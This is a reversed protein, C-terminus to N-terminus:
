DRIEVKYVKEGEKHMGYKERAIRNLLSTDQKLEKIQQKLQKTETELQHTKHILEKKEQSLSYRTWISYTDFFLMWIVIIGGLFLFLYNKKLKFPNM